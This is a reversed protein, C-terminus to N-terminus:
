EQVKVDSGEVNIKEAADKIEVVKEVADEVVEEVKEEVEKVAEETKEVAEEVVKEVDAEGITSTINEINEIIPGMPGEIEVPEPKDVFEFKQQNDLIAAARKSAAAPWPTGTLSEDATIEAYKQKATDFDRIEEECIALGFMAMGKLTPNGKAKALAKEYIKKAKGIQDLVIERETDSYHLDTRLAEASKIFALAAAADTGADAAATELAKSDDILNTLTEQGYLSSMRKVELKQIAETVKSHEERASRERVGAFPKAVWFWVGLLICCVGIVQYLNDRLFAPTQKIWKVLDNDRLEHRHEADM